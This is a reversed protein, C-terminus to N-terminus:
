CRFAPGLASMGTNQWNRYVAQSNVLYFDTWCHWRHNEAHNLNDCSATVLVGDGDNYQSPGSAYSPDVTCDPFHNVLSGVNGLGRNELPTTNAPSLLPSAHTLLPALLILWSPVNAMKCLRSSDLPSLRPIISASAIRLLSFAKFPIQIKRSIFAM